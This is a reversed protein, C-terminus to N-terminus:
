SSSKISNPAGWGFFVDVNNCGNILYRGPSSGDLLTVKSKIVKGLPVEAMTWPRYKPKPKVTILKGLADETAIRIIQTHRTEYVYGILKGQFVIMELVLDGDSDREDFRERWDCPHWTINM